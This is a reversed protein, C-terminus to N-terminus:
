LEEYNILDATGPYGGFFLYTELDWGFAEKMEPYTWHRLHIMEFRGGLSESLGKQVLLPSSGLLVVKLNIANQTDEDWLKKVIESWHLLKQVEDLILMAEQAHRTQLRAVEWQEELWSSSKLMPEDASVFHVPFKLSKAVQHALTTKGVQRPGALVQIFRRKENLRNYISLFNKRQYVM